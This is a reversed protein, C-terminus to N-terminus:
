LKKNVFSCEHKQSLSYRLDLKEKAKNKLANEIRMSILTTLISPPTPPLLPQIFASNM